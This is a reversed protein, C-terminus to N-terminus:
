GWDHENLIEQPIYKGANWLNWIQEQRQKTFYDLFIHDINQNQKEKRDPLDKIEIKEAKELMAEYAAVFPKICIPEGSLYKWGYKVLHEYIFIGEYDLDGFYFLRNDASFYGEAGEAYDVFNKWIGKGAGYILTDFATGLIVNSRTQMYRRLDYFTDKNEIM